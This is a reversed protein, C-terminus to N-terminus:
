EIHAPPSARSLGPGQGALTGPSLSGGHLHYGDIEAMGSEHGSPLPGAEQGAVTSARGPRSDRSIISQVPNVGCPNRIVRVAFIEDAAHHGTSKSPPRTM